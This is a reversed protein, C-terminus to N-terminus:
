MHLAECELRLVGRVVRPPKGWRPIRSDSLIPHRSSLGGIHPSPCGIVIESIRTQRIAYSCMFCPEATTYIACGSLDLTGLARCARRIAIMEAHASIDIRTKVGEIGEAVIEGNRVALSGVATEGKSRAIKALEIARKMYAEHGRKDVPM